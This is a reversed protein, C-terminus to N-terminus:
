QVSLFTQRSDAFFKEYTNLANLKVKSITITAKKALKGDSLKAENKKAIVNKM